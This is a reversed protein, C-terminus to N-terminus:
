LFDPNPFPLGHRLAVMYYKEFAEKMWHFHIGKKHILRNRPSFLPKAGIFFATDGGDAICVVGFDKARIKEQNNIDAWINHAAKKAMVETMMGTKPVGVPVPTPAPPAIALSVGVAYINKYEQNALYDDTLIFGRPNALGKAEMYAHSGYFAPVTLCFDNKIKAGGDFEINEPTVGAIKSNVLYEIDRDAFEDELMRTMAGFGGVGFHGISPENTFLVIKFRNRVKKKRLVSDVCMATEYVPGLCSAGQANGFSLTGSGSEVVRALAKQASVAQEIGFISHTHGAEPGLGPVAAFDLESGTAAVLYDYDYEGAVGVAKNKGPEVKTITDRTFDIGAKKLNGSVDFRLSDPKKTGAVVWPLSPFFTFDPSASVVRVTHERGLLRRLNMACHYGGFSSGLVLIRKGSM